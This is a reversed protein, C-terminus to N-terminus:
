SYVGLGSAITARVADIGDKAAYGNLKSAAVLLRAAVDRPLWEFARLEYGAWNLCDNRHSRCEILTRIIGVVRRQERGNPPKCRVIAQYLPKPIERGVLPGPLSYGTPNLRGDHELSSTVGEYEREQDRLPMLLEIVEKPALGVTRDNIWARGEGPPLAVALGSSRWEGWPFRRTPIGIYRYFLHVGRPTSAALTSAILAELDLPFAECDDVDLVDVSSLVGTAMGVGPWRKASIVAPDRSANDSIKGRPLRKGVMPIVAWGRGAYQLAVDLM